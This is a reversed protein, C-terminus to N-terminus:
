KKRTARKANKKAAELAIIETVFVLSEDRMAEM